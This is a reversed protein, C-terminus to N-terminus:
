ASESRNSKIFDLAINSNLAVYTEEGIYLSYTAFYKTGDDNQEECVGEIRDDFVELSAIFKPSWIAHLKKYLNDMSNATITDIVGNDSSEGTCSGNNDMEESMMYLECKFM